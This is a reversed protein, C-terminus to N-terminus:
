PASLFPAMARLDAVFADFGAAQEAEPIRLLYSPHVTVLAQRAPGLPLLRGRLRTVSEARGLVARTATAGLAVVLSPQVMDVEQTLWPTCAHIEETGPTKHLRRKGRPEFKFHKVANTVYLRSRDIGAAALARDMLQGAPGVFPRGVLDERDGPQEGVLVIRADLPGEGFVTQTADAWLPCARCAQAAAKLAAYAGPAPLAAAAEAAASDLAAGRRQVPQKPTKDVMGRTRDAAGQVLQPILAAEPLNKWFRRPLEAVMARSNVRAPNFINAYYGLWAAEMADEQPADERRAGPAFALAETDWLASLEPTLIAWHMNAFRRVFFPTAAALIHHDPEYWAIFRPPADPEAADQERFRVFAHMKHIDRRVAKVLAALRAIDPDPAVDMLGREAQLRVLLRYLLDFRRPERHLAAKEAQDLFSRPVALRLGATPAAVEMAPADERFLDGAAEGWSWGVEAPPVGQLALRRAAARWGDFDAPGALRVEPM